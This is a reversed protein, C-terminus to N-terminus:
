FNPYRVFIRMWGSLVADPALAVCGLAAPDPRALANAGHSVPEVALIDHGAPAFIRLWRLAGGAQVRIAPADPGIIEAVGDWGDFDHNLPHEAVLRGDRCDWAGGPVRRDPLGHDGNLWAGEARFRLITSPCCPFYPHLGIGAPMVGGARNRLNLEVRLGDPGIRFHQRAQFDFPWFPDAAHDLVLMAHDTGWEAVQWPRQWGLGHVAHPEPPFNPWLAIDRGQWSFRGDIIRNAFPLLPFCATERVEAVAPASRLVPQGDHYLGLVSGGMEPALVLSWGGGQLRM